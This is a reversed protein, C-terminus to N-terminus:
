VSTQSATASHGHEVASNHERSDKGQWDAIFREIKERMPRRVERGNRMDGVLNGDNCVNRGFLTADMGSEALFTEVISLIRDTPDMHLVVLLIRGIVCAPIRKTCM